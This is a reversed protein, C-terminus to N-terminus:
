VVARQEESITKRGTEQGDILSVPRLDTIVSGAELRVPNATVNLIRFPVDVSCQPLLVRSVRLGDAPEANETIWGCPESVRPRAFNRHVITAPIVCESRAPITTAYTVVVRRHWRILERRILKYIRGNLMIEGRAFNWLGWQQDLFDVELIVDIVHSSVYGRIDFQNPVEGVTV